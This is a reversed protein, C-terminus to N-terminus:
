ALGGLAHLVAGDTGYGAVRAYAREFEAAGALADAHDPCLRGPSCDGCYGSSETCAMWALALAALVVERLPRGGAPPPPPIFEPWYYM